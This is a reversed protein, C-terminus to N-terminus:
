NANILDSFQFCFFGLNCFRYINGNCNCGTQKKIPDSEKVIYSDLRLVLCKILSCYKRSRKAKKTVTEAM